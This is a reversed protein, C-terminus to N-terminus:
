AGRRVEDIPRAVFRTTYLKHQVFVTPWVLVSLVLLALHRRRDGPGVWGVSSRRFMVVLSSALMM